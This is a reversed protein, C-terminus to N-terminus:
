DRINYIMNFFTYAIFLGFSLAFYSHITPPLYSWFALFVEIASILPEIPM